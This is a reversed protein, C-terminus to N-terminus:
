AQTFIFLYEGSITPPFQSLFTNKYKTNTATFGSKFMVGGKMVIDPNPDGNKERKVM